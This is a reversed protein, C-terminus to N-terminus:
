TYVKVFFFTSPGMEPAKEGIIMQDNQIISGSRRHHTLAQKRHFLQELFFRGLKVGDPPRQPLSWQNRRWPRSSKHDSLATESFFHFWKETQPLEFHVQRPTKETELSRKCQRSKQSQPAACLYIVITCRHRVM